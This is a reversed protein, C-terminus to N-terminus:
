GTEKRFASPFYVEPKPFLARVEPEREKLILGTTPHFIDPPLDPHKDPNLWVVNGGKAMYIGVWESKPIEREVVYWNTAEADDNDLADYWFQSIGHTFAWTSWKHVDEDPVDVVFLVEDKRHSRSPALDVSQWDQKPTTDSTLWVVDPGVHEGFLTTVRDPNPEWDVVMRIDITDDDDGHAQIQEATVRQWIETDEELKKLLPGPVGMPTCTDSREDYGPSHRRFRKPWVLVLDQEYAPDDPDPQLNEPTGINSETVKLFEDETFIKRFHSVCTLHYLRAM